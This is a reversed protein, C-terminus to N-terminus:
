AAFDTFYVVVGTDQAAWLSLAHCGCESLKGINKEQRQLHPIEGRPVEEEQFHVVYVMDFLM